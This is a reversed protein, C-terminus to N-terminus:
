RHSHRLEEVDTAPAPKTTPTSGAGEKVPASSPGAGETSTGESAPSPVSSRSEYWAQWESVRTGLSLGSIRQLSRYAGGVVGPDADSLLKMLEAVVEDDDFNGLGKAATRRVDSSTDNRVAYLLATRAEPSKSGSLVKMADWRVMANQDLALQLALQDGAAKDQKELSALAASRVLPDSDSQGMAMLAKDRQKKDDAGWPQSEGLQLVRERRVDANKSKLGGSDGGGGACGCAMAATV